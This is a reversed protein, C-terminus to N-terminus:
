NDLFHFILGFVAIDLHVTRRCLVRVSTSLRTGGIRISLVSRPVASHKVTQYVRSVFRRYCTWICIKDGWRVRVVHIVNIFLTLQVLFTM